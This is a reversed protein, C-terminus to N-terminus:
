RGDEALSQNNFDIARASISLIIGACNKCYGKYPEDPQLICPALGDQDSKKRSGWSVNGYHSCYRVMQKGKNPVCLQWFSWRM